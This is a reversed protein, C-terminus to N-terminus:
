SRRRQIPRGARLSRAANTHNKPSIGLRAAEITVAERVKKGARFDALEQKTVPKPRLPNRM